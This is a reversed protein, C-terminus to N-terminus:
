RVWKPKGILHIKEIPYTQILHKLSDAIIEGIEETNFASWSYLTDVYAATDVTVFNVNGRCRYAAYIADLASNESDNANTTWGTVVLVLPLEANFEKLAWLKTPEKLPVSINQNDIKLVYSMNTIDPSSRPNVNATSLAASGTRSFTSFYVSRLPITEDIGFRRNCNMPIRIIRGTNTSFTKSFTMFGDFIRLFEM